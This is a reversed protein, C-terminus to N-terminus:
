GSVPVSSKETEQPDYLERPVQVPVSVERTMVHRKCHDCFRVRDVQKERRITKIVTCSVPGGCWPCEVGIQKM